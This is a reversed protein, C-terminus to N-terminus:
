RQRRRNLRQTATPLLTPKRVLKRTPLPTPKRVLRRTLLLTLKRTPLLSPKRAQNTVRTRTPAPPLPKKRRLAPAGKALPGSRARRLKAKLLMLILATQLPTTARRPRRAEPAVPGHPRPTKLQMMRQATTWRPQQPRRPKQPNSMTPRSTALQRMPMATAAADHADVVAAVADRSPHKKM